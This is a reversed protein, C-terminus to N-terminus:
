WSSELKAVSDDFTSTAVLSQIRDVLDQREATTFNNPVTIQIDAIGLSTVEGTCACASDAAAAKPVSVKWHVRSVGDKTPGRVSESVASSAGGFTTDGYLQWNAVDGTKGRPTYVKTNLTLNGQAAM